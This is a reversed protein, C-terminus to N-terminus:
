DKENSVLKLPEEVLTLTIPQLQHIPTDISIESQKPIIFPLLKILANVRDKASLKSLLTELNGLEANIVKQVIDKSQATTRNPTNKVRGGFKKGTTNAM